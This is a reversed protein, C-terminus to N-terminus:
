KGIGLPASPLNAESRWSNDPVPRVISWKPGLSRIEKLLKDAGRGDSDNVCRRDLTRIKGMVYARLNTLSDGNLLTRFCFGELAILCKGLESQTLHRPDDSPLSRRELLLMVLPLAPGETALHIRGMSRSAEVGIEVEGSGVVLQGVPRLGYRWRHVARPLEREVWEELAMKMRKSISFRRFAEFSRNMNFRGETGEGISIMYNYLFNDGAVKRGMKVGDIIKESPFWSGDYLQDLTREDKLQSFCFNRLHDFQNLALRNGNLADFVASVDADLDPKIKISVFNLRDITAALLDDLDPQPSKEIGGEKDKQKELHHVWLEESTEVKARRHPMGLEEPSLIADQGLWLLYRFYNYVLHLPENSRFVDEGAL